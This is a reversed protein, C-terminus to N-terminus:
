EAETDRKQALQEARYVSPSVGMEARFVKCFYSSSNFGCKLAIETMSLADEVILACATRIKVVNLYSILSVGLEKAFLRCLYYKSIYFHDAIDEISDIHNYNENIYQVIRSMRQDIYRQQMYHNAGTSLHFLLDFLHFALHYWDVGSEEESKLNQFEQLLTSVVGELREAEGANPRFVKPTTRDALMGIMDKSFFRALFTETFFCLVRTAGKGDTRHLMNPPILVYDGAHVKVFRDEIFYEREGNVLYYLEFSNHYHMATMPTKFTDKLITFDRTGSYKSDDVTGGERGSIDM